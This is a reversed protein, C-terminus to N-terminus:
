IEFIYQSSNIIAPFKESQCSLREPDKTATIIEFKIVDM